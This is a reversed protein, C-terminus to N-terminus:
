VLTICLIIHTHHKQIWPCRDIKTALQHQRENRIGKEASKRQLMGAAGVNSGETETMEKVHENGSLSYHPLTFSLSIPEAGHAVKKEGMKTTTWPTAATRELRFVESCELNSGAFTGALPQHCQLCPRSCCAPIHLATRFLLVICNWHLFISDNM